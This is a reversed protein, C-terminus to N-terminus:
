DNQRRIDEIVKYIGDELSVRPQWGLDLLPKIDGKLDKIEGPRPIGPIHEREIEKGLHKEIISAIENISSTKGCGVDVRSSAPLDKAVWIASALDTVYVYDKRQTGEGHITFPKGSLGRKVFLPIVYSNPQGVGYPNLFRLCVIDAGNVIGEADAIAEAGIKSAAYPSNRTYVEGTSAHIVKKRFETAARFVRAAGETNVKYYQYPIKYSVPVATCGALNIVLDCERVAMYLSWEDFIDLGVKLDYPIYKEGIGDLYEMLHKGIFGHSGTILSVM